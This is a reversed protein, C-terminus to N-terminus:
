CYDVWLERETKLLAPEGVPMQRDHDVFVRQDGAGPAQHIKKFGTVGITRRLRSGDTWVGRKSKLSLNEPDQEQVTGTERWGSLPRQLLPHAM